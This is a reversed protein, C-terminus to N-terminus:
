VRIEGSMLKPLLIDRIKTLVIMSKSNKWIKDYTSETFENFQKILEAPYEPIKLGELDVKTISGFITGEGEFMNWSLSKMFYFLFSGHDKKLRLSALGRGICCRENTINIAGVPARVTILVNDKEAYRKPETCYMRPSPFFRGFDSNGQYFVIGEGIKNYSTGPPSQGMVIECLTDLTTIKWGKPIKGLKSDEFETMGDFDIFWSKFITQVIEELTENMKLLLEIRDTLVNLIKIIRDQIKISPLEIELTRFYTIPQALAPVGVRSTNALLLHQGKLTKFFYVLFVPIIKDTNCRVYFQSQSIVYREYKSNMPIYSVQGISGRHTFIIDGRHVNAHKLKEAHETTIFNFSKEDLRFGKLHQGRIVPIGDSVFTEVKISSGFPGIAIKKTLDNMTHILRDESM